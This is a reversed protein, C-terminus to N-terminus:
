SNLVSDEQERLKKLDEPANVQLRPEPPVMTATAQTSPFSASVEEQPKPFVNFVWKVVVMVVLIIAILSVAFWVLARTNTDRVEHGIVQKGAGEHVHQM